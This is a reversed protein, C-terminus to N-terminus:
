RLALAENKIVTDLMRRAKDVTTVFPNVTFAQLAFEYSQHRVAEVILRDSEKTAVFLGHLFHPCNGVRKAKFAGAAVDVPVEVSGAAPLDRIAGDNRVCLILRRKRDNELAQILPVITEEYWPTNRSRTLPPIEHLHPDRYLELIQAEAEHLAQARHKGGRRQEDVIRGSHFYDSVRRAPIMRFLRIVDLDFGDSGNHEIRDLLAGMISKRHLRVDQIFGLHNLGLYDVDLEDVRHRILDAIKRIYTGPLDCVGIVRLRTLATLADVVIGMPNTLNIYICDPNVAEVRKAQEIVTPLTRLANALGGPGISEDGVMDELPPLSEDRLRAPMGGVRVHNLVYRAGIVAEELQTTHRIETPFGSRKILRRCFDAVVPLKDGTRGYLVVERVNINHTILSFVFEPIYVSSGGLISIRDIM